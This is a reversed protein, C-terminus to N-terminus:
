SLKDTLSFSVTIEKTRDGEGRKVQPKIKEPQMVGLNRLASMLSAEDPATVTVNVVLGNASPRYEVKVEVEEDCRQQVYETWKANIENALNPRFCTCGNVDGEAFLAKGYIKILSKEGNSLRSCCLTKAVDVRPFESLATITIAVKNAEWQVWEGPNLPNVRKDWIECSMLGNYDCTLHDIVCDQDEILNGEADNLVLSGGESLDWYDGLDVIDKPMEAYAYQTYTHTAGDKGPESVLVRWAVPKAAKDKVEANAENSM